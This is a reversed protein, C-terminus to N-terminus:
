PALARELNMELLRELVETDTLDWSTTYCRIKTM